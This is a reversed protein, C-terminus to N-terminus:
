ANVMTPLSVKDKEVLVNLFPLKNEVSKEITFNMGFIESLEDKLLLLVKEDCVVFIDDKYRGYLSPSLEPSSGDLARNEVESMFFNAFTPGLPSGMSVGDIQIYINGSPDRFPAETTCIILLDKLIQRPINPLKITSHNYVKDLIINITRHVPVNTFLSEVDLSFLDGSHASCTLIEVFETSSKLM